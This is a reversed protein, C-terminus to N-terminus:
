RPAFITIQALRTLDFNVIGDIAPQDQPRPAIVEHELVAGSRYARAALHILRTV